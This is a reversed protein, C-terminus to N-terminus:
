QLVFGLVRRWGRRWRRRGKVSVGPEAARGVNQYEHANRPHERVSQHPEIGEIELGAMTLAHALAPVDQGPDVWDRLWQLSIKM